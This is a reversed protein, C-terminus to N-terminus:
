FIMDFSYRLYELLYNNSFDMFLYFMFTFIFLFIINVRIIKRFTTKYIVQMMQLYRFLHWVLFMLFLVGLIPLFNFIDLIRILFTGVFLMPLLLSSNWLAFQICLPFPLKHVNFFYSLAKLYIGQFVFLLLIIITLLLIFNYPNWTLTILIEKIFNSNIFLSALFDFKFNEKQQWFISSINLALKFNSFVFSAM